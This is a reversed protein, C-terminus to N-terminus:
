ICFGGLGLQSYLLWSFYKKSLSVQSYFDLPSNKSNKLAQCYNSFEKYMKAARDTYLKGRVGGFELKEMRQFDLMIEFMDQVPSM